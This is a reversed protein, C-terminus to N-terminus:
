FEELKKIHEFALKQLITKHLELFSKMQESSIEVDILNGGYYFHNQYQVRFDLYNFEFSNKELIKIYKELFSPNIKTELADQILMPLKQISELKFVSPLRSYDM